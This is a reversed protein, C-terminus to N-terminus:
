IENLIALVNEDWNNLKLIEVIEAAEDETDYCGFFKSNNAGIINDVKKGLM